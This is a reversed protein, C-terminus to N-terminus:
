LKWTEIPEYLFSAETLPKELSEALKKTAIRIEPAFELYWDVTELIYRRKFEEPTDVACLLNHLRDATKVAKAMENSCIGKVYEEMVYGKKKTLLKVAELIRKNGYNEIEKETADTDELLDHFLGAIQYEIGFGKEKVLEAVAMPHTIYPQGGIRLQGEHKKKAFELATRYQEENLMIRM